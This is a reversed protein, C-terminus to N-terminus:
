VNYRGEPLTLLFRTGHDLAASCPSEVQIGGNLDEMMTFVLALGLGTGAGPDKTTFFHEFIRALHQEAIGTGNDEISIILKDGDARAVSTTIVGDNGCADRANSYLNIFIQLLKQPDAVAM